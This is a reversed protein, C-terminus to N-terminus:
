RSVQASRWHAVDRARWFDLAVVWNGLLGMLHQVTFLLFCSTSLLFYSTPLLFHSTPLRFDSTPLLFYNGLLGILHQM